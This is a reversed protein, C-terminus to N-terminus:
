PNVLWVVAGSGFLTAEYYIKYPANGTIEYCVNGKSKDGALITGGLSPGCDFIDESLKTGESDRANFSAMTSITFESDGKNEITFNAQLIKGSLKASNLVITRGKIEIVDGVDYTEVEVPTRTATDIEDIKIGTDSSGCALAALILVSVVILVARKAQKM